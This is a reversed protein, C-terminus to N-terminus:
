GNDDGNFNNYLFVNAVDIYSEKGHAVLVFGNGGNYHLEWYSVLNQLAIFNKKSRFFRRIVDANPVDHGGKLVRNNIRQICIEDTRKIKAIAQSNWDCDELFIRVNSERPKFLGGLKTHLDIYNGYTNTGVEVVNGQIQHLKNNCARNAEVRNREFLGNVEYATIVEGYKERYIQEKQPPMKKQVQTQTYTTAPFPEGYTASMVVFFIYPSFVILTTLVKQKITGKVVKGSADQVEGFMIIILDLIWWFGFGGLTLLKWIGQKKHGLYFKDVGLMGLIFSIFFLMSWNIDSKETNAIEKQESSM